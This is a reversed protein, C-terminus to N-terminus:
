IISNRTCLCPTHSLGSYQISEKIKIFVEIRVTQFLGEVGGLTRQIRANKVLVDLLESDNELPAQLEPTQRVRALEEDFAPCPIRNM